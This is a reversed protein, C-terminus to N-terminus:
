PPVPELPWLPVPLPEPAAPVSDLLSAPEIPVPEDPELPEDPEEPLLEDPEDPLLLPCVFYRRRPLWCPLPDEGGPGKSQGPTL